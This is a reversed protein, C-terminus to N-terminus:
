QSFVQDMGDELLNYWESQWNEGHRKRYGSMAIFCNVSLMIAIVGFITYVGWFLLRLIFKM